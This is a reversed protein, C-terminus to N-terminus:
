RFKWSRMMHPGARLKPRGMYHLRQGPSALLHLANPGATMTQAPYAPPLQRPPVWKQKGPVHSQQVAHSLHIDARALPGSAHASLYPVYLSTCRMGPPSPKTPNVRMRCRVLGSRSMSSARGRWAGGAAVFGCM